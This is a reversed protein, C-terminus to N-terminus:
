WYGRTPDVPAGWPTTPYREAPTFLYAQTHGDAYLINFVGKGRVAHWASVQDLTRDPAGPWDVMLIKAAVFSGIEAKKMPPNGSPSSTDGGIAEIGYYSYGFGTTNPTPAGTGPDILGTQRWPMLYSNGWDSFCTQGTGWITSGQM